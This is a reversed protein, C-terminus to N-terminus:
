RGTPVSIHTLLPCLVVPSWVTIALSLYPLCPSQRIREGSPLSLWFPHRCVYLSPLIDRVFSSLSDRKKIPLLTRIYALAHLGHRMCRKLLTKGRRGFAERWMLPIKPVREMFLGDCESLRKREVGLIEHRANLIERWEILVDRGMGLVM